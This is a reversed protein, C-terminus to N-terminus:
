TNAREITSHTCKPRVVARLSRRKAKAMQERRSDRPRQIDKLQAAHWRQVLAQTHDTKKHRRHPYGWLSRTRQARQQSARSLRHRAIQEPPEDSRHLKPRWVSIPRNCHKSCATSSTHNASWSTSGAVRRRAASMSDHRMFSGPTNLKGVPRLSCPM